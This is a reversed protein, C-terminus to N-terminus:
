HRKHEALWADRAAARDDESVERNDLYMEAQETLGFRNYLALAGFADRSLVHMGEGNIPSLRGSLELRYRRGHISYIDGDKVAEGRNIAAVDADM